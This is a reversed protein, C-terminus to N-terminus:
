KIGDQASQRAHLWSFYAYTASQPHKALVPFVAATQSLTFGANKDDDHLSRSFKNQPHDSLVRHHHTSISSSRQNWAAWIFLRNLRFSHPKPRKSMIEVRLYTNELLFNNVPVCSNTHLKTSNCAVSESYRIINNNWWKLNFLINLSYRPLKRKEENLYHYLKM